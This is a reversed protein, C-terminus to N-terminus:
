FLKGIEHHNQFDRNKEFLMVERVIYCGRKKKADKEPYMTLQKFDNLLLVERGSDSRIILFDISKSLMYYQPPFFGAM